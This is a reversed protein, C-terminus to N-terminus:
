ITSKILEEKHFTNLNSNDKASLKNQNYVSLLYEYDINPLYPVCESYYIHNIKDVEFDSPYYEILDSTSSVLLHSVKSPLLKYSDSPLVMLLQVIPKPPETRSFNIESLKINSLYNYIDQPLPAKMYPYYWKYDHITKFYYQHNWVLGNIYKECIEKIKDEYEQKNNINLGWYYSYYRERYGQRGLQITDREQNYVIELNFINENLTNEEPTKKPDPIFSASFNKYKRKM